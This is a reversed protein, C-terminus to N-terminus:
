TPDYRLGQGSQFVPTFMILSRIRSVSTSGASEKIGYFIEEKSDKHIHSHTTPLLTHNTNKNM